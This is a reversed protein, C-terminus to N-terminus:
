GEEEEGKKEGKEEEEKDMKEEEEGEEEEEGQEGDAREARGLQGFLKMSDTERLLPPQSPGPCYVGHTGDLLRVLLVLPGGPAPLPPCIAPAGRIM